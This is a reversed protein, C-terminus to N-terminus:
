HEGSFRPPEWGPRNWSKLEVKISGLWVNLRAVIPIRAADNSFWGRFGGTLGVVGVFDAHGNFFVTEVPYSVADIDQDEIKNQFDIYTNKEKNDIFTPITDHRAQRVHERAYYFLSLGDQERGMVKVTDVEDTKSVGSPSVNGKRYIVRHEPYDFALDHYDTGSKSSDESIWYHSFISDDIEGYFRIHVETLWSLSPNSEIRAQAKFIPRGNRVDKGLIKFRVTGISFFSYSVAYELEEGVQICTGEGPAIQLMRAPIAPRVKKLLAGSFFLSCTLLVSVTGVIRTTTRVHM